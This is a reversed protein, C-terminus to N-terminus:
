IEDFYPIDDAGADLHEGPMNRLVNLLAQEITLPAIISYCLAPTDTELAFVYIFLTLMSECGILIYNATM